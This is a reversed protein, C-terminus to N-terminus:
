LRIIQHDHNEIDISEFMKDIVAYGYKMLLPAINFIREQFRNNPYLHNHVKQIQRTVVANKKKYAQQIKKELSQLQHNMKGLTKFVTNELTPEFSTAERKISEFDQELHSAAANLAQDITEPLQQKVIKAIIPDVNQWMGQITLAYQKLVRDVKDELLTVTKRPYIVPMSLDFCEYIGKMQAFYAIEGPGGIYAATPLLVDQYIPRLLVNPSFLRPKKEVQDLLGNKAVTQEIGNIQFDGNEIKITQRQREAFFV